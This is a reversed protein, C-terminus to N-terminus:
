ESGKGEIRTKLDKLGEDYQGALMPGLIVWMAKGAIGSNPGGYSWTVKTGNGEPDLIFESYYKGDSGGFSMGCKVRKNEDIEEIWQSGSGIKPGDWSMKSGVTGDTGEFTQKVDPDTKSWPEWESFKRFNSVEPFISSPPANIVISKQLHAESPQMAIVIMLIIVMVGIIIGVMKLAKM